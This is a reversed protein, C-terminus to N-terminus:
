FNSSEYNEWCIENIITKLAYLLAQNFPKTRNDWSPMLNNIQTSYDVLNPAKSADLDMPKTIYSCISLTQKHDKNYVGSFGFLRCLTARNEYVSCKGLKWFICHNDKNDELEKIISEQENKGIIELALPILDIPSVQVDKSSCCIGLCSNSCQINFTKSFFDNEKDMKSYLDKIKNSISVYELLKM